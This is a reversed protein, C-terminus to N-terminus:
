PVACAPLDSNQFEAGFWTFGWISFYTMVTLAVALGALVLFAKAIKRWRLLFLIASAGGLLLSAVFLYRFAYLAEFGLM